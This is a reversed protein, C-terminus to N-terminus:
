SRKKGQGAVHGPYPIFRAELKSLREDLNKIALEIADLRKLIEESDAGPKGRGPNAKEERITKM